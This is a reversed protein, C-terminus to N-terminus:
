IDLGNMLNEQQLDAITEHPFWNQNPIQRRALLKSIHEVDTPWSVPIPHGGHAANGCATCLFHHQSWDAIEASNCEPCQVIWRGHNAFVPLAADAIATIAM